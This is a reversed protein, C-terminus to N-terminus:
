RATGTVLYYAHIGVLRAHIKAISATLHVQTGDYNVGVTGSSPRLGERALIPSIPLSGATHRKRSPMALGVRTERIGFAAKTM